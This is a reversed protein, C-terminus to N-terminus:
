KDRLRQSYRYTYGGKEFLDGSRMKVEFFKWNFKNFLLKIM